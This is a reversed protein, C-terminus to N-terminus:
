PRESWGLEGALLLIAEAAQVQETDKLSGLADLLAPLHPAPDFSPDLRRLSRAADVRLSPIALQEVLVRRAAPDGLQALAAAAFANFRADELLKVLEPMVDTRGAVGLAITARARDDATSEADGRVEDLVALARKDRLQALQEAAGLRLQSVQLFSALSRTAREDGLQALLRGAQARVDRRSARLGAVLVDVGRREGGRALAYALDLRAADSSESDLAAALVAIAKPDGTRALATAAVRQVRPTGTELIHALVERAKAVSEAPSLAPPADITPPPAAPTAAVVDHAKSSGATSAAVDRHAFLFRYALFAGSGGLLVVFVLVLPTHKPRAAASTVAGHDHVAAAEARRADRADDLEGPRPPTPAITQASSASAPAVGSAAVPPRAPTTARTTAPTTAAAAPRPTSAAAARSAKAPPAAPADQAPPQPPVQVPRSEAARACDTSCYAVVKGDRVGVSRARLSDVPKGCTPCTTTM